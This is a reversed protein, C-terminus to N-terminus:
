AACALPAASMAHLRQREVAEPTMPDLDAPFILAVPLEAAPGAHRRGREHSRFM